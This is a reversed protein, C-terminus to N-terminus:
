KTNLQLTSNCCNLRGLCGRGVMGDAGGRLHSGSELASCRLEGAKWGGPGKSCSGCSCSESCGLASGQATIAPGARHERAGLHTHTRHGGSALTFGPFRM